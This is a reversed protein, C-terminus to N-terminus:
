EVCFHMEGSLNVTDQSIKAIIRFHSKEGKDAIDCKRTVSIKNQMIRKLKILKKDASSVPVIELKGFKIWLLYVKCFERVCRPTPASLRLLFPTYLLRPM